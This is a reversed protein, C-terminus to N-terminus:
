RDGLSVGERRLRLTPSRARQEVSQPVRRTTGTAAGADRPPFDPEARHGSSRGRRSRTARENVRHDADDRRHSSRPPVSRAARLRRPCESRRVEPERRRRAGVDAAGPVVRRTPADISTPQTARVQFGAHAEIRGVAPRPPDHRDRSGCRAAPLHRAYLGYLCPSALLFFTAARSKAATEHIRCSRHIQGFGQEKRQASAAVVRVAAAVPYRAGHRKEARGIM